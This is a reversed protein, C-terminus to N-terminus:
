GDAREMSKRGRTRASRRAYALSWKPASRGLLIQLAGEAMKLAGMLRIELANM